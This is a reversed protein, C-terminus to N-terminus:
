LKIRNRIELKVVQGSYKFEKYNFTYNMIAIAVCKFSVEALFLPNDQRGLPVMMLGCVCTWWIITKLNERKKLERVQGHSSLSLEKLNDSSCGMIEMQLVWMRIPLVGTRRSPSNSQGGWQGGWQGWSGTEGELVEKACSSRSNGLASNQNNSRKNFIGKIIKWSGFSVHSM